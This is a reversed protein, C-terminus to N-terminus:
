EELALEPLRGAEPVPRGRGIALAMLAAVLCMAGSVLFALHYAGSQTRIVGAGLAAAGAGVQHAAMVWGFVIPARERGFADTALKM